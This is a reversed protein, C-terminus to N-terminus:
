KNSGRKGAPKKAAPAKAQVPKPAPGQQTAEPAPAPEREILFKGKPWPEGKDVTKKAMAKEDLIDEGKYDKSELDHTLALNEPYRYPATM